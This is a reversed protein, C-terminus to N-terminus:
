LRENTTFDEKKFASTDVKTVTFELKEIPEGNKDCFLSPDENQSLTFDYALNYMSAVASLFLKVEHKSNAFKGIIKKDHHVRYLPPIKIMVRVYYDEKGTNVVEKKLEKCM